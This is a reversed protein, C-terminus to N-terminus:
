DQKLGAAAILNSRAEILGAATIILKSGRAAATLNSEGAASIM